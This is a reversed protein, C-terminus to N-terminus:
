LRLVPGLVEAPTRYHLCKRPRNNLKDAIRAVRQHSFTLLNAERGVYQRILGNTNENTGREWSSYPNAFFTKFGLRSALAQHEVFESGNDTTITKRLKAPLHKFLRVAAANFQAARGDPLRAILVYRSKREVCTALRGNRAVM